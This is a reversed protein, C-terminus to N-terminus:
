KIRIADPATLMVEAWVNYALRQLLAILRADRPLCSYNTCGTIEQVSGRLRGGSDFSVLQTVSRRVESVRRSVGALRSALTERVLMECWRPQRAMRRFSFLKLKTLMHAKKVQWKPVQMARAPWPFSVELKFLVWQSVTPFLVLLESAPNARFTM